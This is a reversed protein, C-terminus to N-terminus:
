ILFISYKPKFYYSITELGLKLVFILVNQKFHNSRKLMKATTLIKSPVSNRVNRKTELFHRRHQFVNRHAHIWNMCANDNLSQHKDHMALKKRVQDQQM